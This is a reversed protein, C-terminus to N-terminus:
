GARNALRQGGEASDQWSHQGLMHQVQHHVSPPELVYRVAGKDSAGAAAAHGSHHSAHSQVVVAAGSNCDPGQLGTRAPRQAQIDSLNCEISDRAALLAAAQTTSATRHDTNSQQGNANNQSPQRLLHQGVEVRVACDAAALSSGKGAGFVKARTTGSRGIKNFPQHATSPGELGRKLRNSQRVTHQEAEFEAASLKSRQKDCHMADDACMSNGGAATRVAGNCEAYMVGAGIFAQGSSCCASARSFQLKSQVLTPPQKHSKSGAAMGAPHCTQNVQNSNAAQATDRASANPAPAPSTIFATSCQVKQPGTQAAPPQKITAKSAHLVHKGGKWLRQDGPVKTPAVPAEANEVVIIRTCPVTDRSYRTKAPSTIAQLCAAECAIVQLEASAPSQQVGVDTQQLMALHGDDDNDCASPRSSTEETVASNSVRPSTQCAVHCVTNNAIQAASNPEKHQLLLETQQQQWARVEHMFSDVSAALDLLQEKIMAHRDKETDALAQLRNDSNKQHQLLAPVDRAIITSMTSCCEQLSDIQLQVAADFSGTAAAGKEPSATQTAVTSGEVGVAAPGPAAADGDANTGGSLFLAPLQQQQQQSKFRRVGQLSQLLSHLKASPRGATVAGAVGLLQSPPLLSIAANADTSNHNGGLDQSGFTEQMLFATGTSLHQQQLFGQTNQPASDISGRQQHGLSAGRSTFMDPASSPREVQQGASGRLISVAKPKLTASSISTNQPQSNNHVIHQQSPQSGGLMQIQSATSCQPASGPRFVGSLAPQQLTSPTYGNKTARRSTSFAQLGVYIAMFHAEIPPNDTCTIIETTLKVHFYGLFSLLQMAGFM